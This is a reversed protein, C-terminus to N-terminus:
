GNVAAFRSDTLSLYDFELRSRLCGLRVQNTGTVECALGVASALLLWSKWLGAISRKLM